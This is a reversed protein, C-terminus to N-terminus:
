LWPERSPEGDSDDDTDDTTEGAEASDVPDIGATPATPSSGFAVGSAPEDAAAADTAAVAGGDVEDGGDTTVASAPTDAGSDSAGYGADDPGPGETEASDAAADANPDYAFLATVVLVGLAVPQETPLLGLVSLSLIGLAVSSGFRFRDIDVRGRLRDGAVAVSLAFAVGVGAAAGARALLDPNLTVALEAGAPQFSAILGLGIIAGPSPLYEGIEASATKAAVALIVLGAFRHFVDTNLLSQITEALAAEAMAVPVLVVGLLLVSVAKERPTGEMEALVVAVTASGGFILLGTEIIGFPMTLAGAIVLAPFIGDVLPLGMVTALLRTAGGVRRELRLAIPHASSSM